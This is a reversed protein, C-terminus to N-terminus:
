DRVDKNGIINKRSGILLVFTKTYIEDKASPMEGIWFTAQIDSRIRNRANWAMPISASIYLNDKKIDKKSLVVELREALTHMFTEKSGLSADLFVNAGVSNTTEYTIAGYQEYLSNIREEALYIYTKM